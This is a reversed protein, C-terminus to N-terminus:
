HPYPGTSQDVKRIPPPQKESCTCALNLLESQPMLENLTKAQSGIFRRTPFPEISHSHNSLPTM